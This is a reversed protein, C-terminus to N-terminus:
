FSRTQGGDVVLCAGTIFSARESALFVVADAIEELRGFRSLPVDRDLMALTGERDEAVRRDWVSDNFMINGPCVVNIRIRKAALPRSLNKSYSNLAAKAASYTAPAGLAELGAISSTLAIAGGTKEMLPVCARIATSTSLLNIGLVRDWEAEDEDLPPVSRGSGINCVLVDLRSFRAEITQVLDNMTQEDTLDGQFPYIRQDGWIAALDKHARELSAAERGTVIITSGERLFGEVIGRGIGRSSGTVLVIRDRLELDM